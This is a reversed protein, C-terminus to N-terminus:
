DVKLVTLVADIALKLAWSKNEMSDFIAVEKVDKVQGDSVDIGYTNSKSM